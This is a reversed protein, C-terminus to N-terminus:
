VDKRDTTEGLVGDDFHNGSPYATAIKNGLVDHTADWADLEPKPVKILRHVKASEGDLVLLEQRIAYKGFYPLLYVWVWYYFACAALIGLGVVCYTAYWFSV